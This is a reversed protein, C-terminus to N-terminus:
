QIIMIALYIKWNITNENTCKLYSMVLNIHIAEFLQASNLDNLVLM